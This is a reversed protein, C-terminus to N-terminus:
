EAPKERERIAENEADVASRFTTDMSKLVAIEERRVINGTIQCWAIFESSSIAAPGNFGPTL